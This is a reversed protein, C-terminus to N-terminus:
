LLWKALSVLAGAFIVAAAALVPWSRLLGRKPRALVAADFLNALAGATSPREAPDRALAQLVVAEIASANPHDSWNEAFPPISGNIKALLIQFDSEGEFPLNGTLAQYLTVGLAYVDSRGDVESGRAQEPSLYAATGLSTQKSTLEVQSAGPRSLDGGLTFDALKVVPTDDAADAIIVAEPNIDRHILGRAHAADLASAVQHLYISLAEPPIPGAEALRAALTQGPVYELALYLQGEATVGSAVTQVVHPHEFSRLIDADRLFRSRFDANKSSALTLIQIAVPKGSQIDEAKYVRSGNHKLVINPEADGDGPRFDAGTIEDGLRFREEIM